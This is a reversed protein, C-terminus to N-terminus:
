HAAVDRQRAAGGLLGRRGPAADRGARAAAARARGRREAALGRRPDPRHLPHRALRRASGGLLPVGHRAHGGGTTAAVTPEAALADAPRTRQERVWISCKSGRFPWNSQGTTSCETTPGGNDTTVIWLTEQLMSSERLAATVNEVGEDLASLMGAFQRRQLDMITENYKDYYHEPSQRPEHVGQYALYLFLPKDQETSHHKKIIEVARDTFLNTSDTRLLSRDSM